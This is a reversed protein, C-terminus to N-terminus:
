DIAPCPRQRLDSPTMGYRRRFARYFWSLNNFGCGFVISSVTQYAYRRDSLLRHARALRQELVYDTFTTGAFDFLARVYSPSIAHRAAVQDLSLDAQMANAAIDAKIARLRAARLGRGCALAQMDPKGGLALQALDHLHTAASMAEDPTLSVGQQVLRVAYAALHRFAESAGVKNGAVRDLDTILPALTARPFAISLLNRTYDASEIHGTYDRLIFTGEGPRCFVDDHGKLGSGWVGSDAANILFVLDDNGDAVQPKGRQARLPTCNIRGISVGPLLQIDTLVHVPADSKLSVDINAIAAYTDRLAEVRDPLAYDDTSFKLFAM